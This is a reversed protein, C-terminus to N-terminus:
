LIGFGHETSAALASFVPTPLWSLIQEHAIGEALETGPLDM